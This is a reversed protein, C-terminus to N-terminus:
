PRTFVSNLGLSLETKAGTPHITPKKLIRFVRLSDSFNTERFIRSMWPTLYGPRHYVGSAQLIFSVCIVMGHPLTIIVIIIM